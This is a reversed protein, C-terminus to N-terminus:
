KKIIKKLIDCNLSADKSIKFNIKNQIEDRKCKKINKKFKKYLKFYYIKKGGVNIIVSANKKILIKIINVLKTVEIASTFSDEAATNFIIKNKDFFRTRIILYNELDKVLKEAKLKTLGYYNYPKM